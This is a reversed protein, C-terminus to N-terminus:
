WSRSNNLEDFSVKSVTCISIGESPKIQCVSADVMEKVITTEEIVPPETPLDVAHESVAEGISDSAVTGATASVSALKLFLDM